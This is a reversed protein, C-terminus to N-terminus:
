AAEHLTLQGDDTIAATLRGAVYDDCLRAFQAASTADLAGVAHGLAVATLMPADSSMAKAALARVVEDDWGAELLPLLGRAIEYRRVTRAQSMHIPVGANTAQVVLERFVAQQNPALREFRAKMAEADADTVYAGEDPAPRGPAHVGPLTARREAPTAPTYTTALDKRTRWARVQMSQRFAQWGAAIDVLHLTCTGCGVPLHIVLGHTRSVAPMPLRQDQTGDDRDGQVYLADANAYAALQVAISQWSYSLNAGTKIDAVLPGYGPLHAVLRDATGAVHDGDLVVTVEIMDPDFTIEAAQITRVYTDVDAAMTPLLIPMNGRDVLETVAHLATGQNARDTAGGATSCEEVLRKCEKKAASYWPDPHEAILAQWRAHLGSNRIAGVMAATAKWPGLGDGSDLTKAVTTVRTYGVPRGGEPPVVLYRGWRDRRTETM